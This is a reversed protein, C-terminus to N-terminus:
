VGVITPGLCILILCVVIVDRGAKCGYVLVSDAFGFLLFM